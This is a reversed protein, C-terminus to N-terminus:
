WTGAKEEVNVGAAIMNVDVVVIQRVGNSGIVVMVIIRKIAMMVRMALAGTRGLDFRGVRDLQPMPVCAVWEMTNNERRQSRRDSGAEDSRKEDRTRVIDQSGDRAERASAGRGRGAQDSFL